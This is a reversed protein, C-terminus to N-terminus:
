YVPIQKSKKWYENPTILHVDRRKPKLKVLDIGKCIAMKPINWKPNKNYKLRYVICIFFRNPFNKLFRYETTSIKISRRPVDWETKSNNDVSQGKVEYIKCTEKNKGVQIDGFPLLYGKTGHLFVNKKRKKLYLFVKKEAYKGYETQRVMIGDNCL